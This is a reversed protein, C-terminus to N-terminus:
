EEGSSIRPELASRMLIFVAVSLTLSPLLFHEPGLLLLCLVSSVIAVAGPFSTPSDKIQEIFIVTFLATLAYDIGTTDFPIWTGILGGLASFSSWYFMLLATSFIHVWKESVGERDKYSCLLTYSEDSM